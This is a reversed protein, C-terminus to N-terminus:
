DRSEEPQNKRASETEEEFFLGAPPMEMCDRKGPDNAAEEM